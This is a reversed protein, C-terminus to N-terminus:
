ITLEKSMVFGRLFSLTLQPRHREFRM